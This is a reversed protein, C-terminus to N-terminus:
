RSVSYLVTDCDAAAVVFVITSNGVVVGLVAAPQGQYVGSGTFRVTGQDAYRKACAQVQEPTAGAATDPQLKSLDSSSASPATDQGADATSRASLDASNEAADNKARARFRDGPAGILEDLTSPNSLDGIDGLDGERVPGITGGASKASSSRTNDSARTALLVGGGFVVVLVAAAAALRTSWGCKAAASRTRSHIADRRHAGVAIGDASARALIRRRTVDDLDVVPVRLQDRVRVLTARRDTYGPHATIQALLSSRDLGLEAAYAALEGDLEASIATDLDLQVPEDPNPGVRGPDSQNSDNPQDSM